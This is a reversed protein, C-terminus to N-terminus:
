EYKKLIAKYEKTEKFDLFAKRVAEVLVDDTDRNFAFSLESAELKYVVRYDDLKLGQKEIINQCTAKNCVVLDVKDSELQKISDENSDNTRISADIQDNANYNDKGAIKYKEFDDPSSIIINKTRKAFVVPEDLGIPGVWKFYWSRSPTKILPFFVINTDNTHRIFSRYFSHIEIDSAKKTSETKELIAEVVDVYIGAPKQSDKDMYSYPYYEQGVWKLDDVGAALSSTSLFTLLLAKKIM